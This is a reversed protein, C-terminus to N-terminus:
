GLDHRPRWPPRGYRERLNGVLWATGGVLLAAFLVFELRVTLSESSVGIVGILPIAAALGGDRPGFSFGLAAAIGLYLVSLGGAGTAKVIALLSSEALMGVVLATVFRRGM